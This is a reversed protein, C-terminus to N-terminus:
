QQSELGDLNSLAASMLERCRSPKMRRYLGDLRPPHTGRLYLATERRQDVYQLLFLITPEHPAVQITHIENETLYYWDGRRLTESKRRLRTRGEYEFSAAGRLVSRYRFLSYPEDAPDDTTAFTVNRMWGAVVFTHFRYAHDHPNVLYGDANHQVRAPDAIYLKATLKQTRLLNIYSLGHAHFDDFSERAADDADQSEVLNRMMSIWAGSDTSMDNMNGM